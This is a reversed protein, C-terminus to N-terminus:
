KTHDGGHRINSCINKINQCVIQIYESMRGPMRDSMCEPLRDTM